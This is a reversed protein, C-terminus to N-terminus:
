AVGEPLWVMLHAVDGALRLLDAARTDDHERLPVFDGVLVLLRLPLEHLRHAVVECADALPGLDDGARRLRALAQFLDQLGDLLGQGRVPLADRRRDEVLNHAIGEEPLQRAGGAVAALLAADVVGGLDGRLGRDDGHEAIRELLELRRVLQVDLVLDPLVERPEARGDLDLPPSAALPLGNPTRLLPETVAQHVVLDPSSRAMRTPRLRGRPSPSRPAVGSRVSGIEDAIYM